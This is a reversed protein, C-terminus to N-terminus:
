NDQAIESERETQCDRQSKTNSFPACRGLSGWCWQRTKVRNKRKDWQKQKNIIRGRRSVSEKVGGSNPFYLVKQRKSLSRYVYYGAQNTTTQATNVGDTLRRCASAIPVWLAVALNFFWMLGSHSHHGHLYKCPSSWGSERVSSLSWHVGLHSM